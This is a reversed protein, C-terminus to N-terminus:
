VGQKATFFTKVGFLIIVAVSLVVAIIVFESSIMETYAGVIFMLAEIFAIVGFGLLHNGGKVWILLAIAIMLMFWIVTSGLGTLESWSQVTNRISNDNLNIATVNASDTTTTIDEFSISCSSDGFSVGTSGVTFTYDELDTSTPVGTDLGYINLPHSGSQNAIFSLIFSTGSSANVTWGSDQENAENFYGIIKASVLDDDYNNDSEEDRVTVTVQITSNIMVQSSTFCPDFVLDTITAPTNVIGDLVVWLNTNTYQLLEARSDNNVDVAIIAGDEYTDDFINELVSDAGDASFQFIGYPTILEDYNATGDEGDNPNEDMQSAGMLMVFQGTQENSVNWPLVNGDIGWDFNASDTFLSTSHTLSGCLVNLDQGQEIAATCFEKRGGNEVFADAKFVNGILNGDNFSAEPFDDILSKTSTYAYMGYSDADNMYAFVIELGNSPAGDFDDLIIGTFKNGQNDSACTGYHTSAFDLSSEVSTKKSSLFDVNGTTNLSLDLIYMVENNQITSEIDAYTTLVHLTGNNTLDGIAPSTITPMCYMRTGGGGAAVGDISISDSVTMNRAYATFPPLGGDSGANATLIVCYGYADVCQIRTEAYNAFSWEANLSFVTGNYAYIEIEGGNAVLIEPTPTTKNIDFVTMDTVGNETLIIADVLQLTSVNLHYLELNQGDIIIIENTGDLDLDAILPTLHPTASIINTNDTDTLRANFIGDTMVGDNQNYSTYNSATVTLSLLLFSLALLLTIQKRYIRQDNTM